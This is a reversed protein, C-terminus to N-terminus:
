GAVEKALGELLLMVTELNSLLTEQQWDEMKPGVLRRASRCTSAGRRLLSVLRKQEEENIVAIM